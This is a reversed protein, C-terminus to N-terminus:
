LCGGAKRFPIIKPLVDQDAAIPMPNQPGASTFQFAVYVELESCSWPAPEEGVIVLDAFESGPSEICCTRLFLEGNSRLYSEVDEHKMGPKFMGHTCTLRTVIPRKAFPKPPKPRSKVISGVLISLSLIFFTALPIMHKRAM